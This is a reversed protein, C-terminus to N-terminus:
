ENTVLETYLGKRAMLEEHTGREVVVGKDMVLIEDCDRITSLRHAVIICTIGRNHIANVVDYETKADLASTAEDMIIITPEQALVRAIELRQRQGGSFDKGGESLKYQFGGDRQMIDNYIQADWAALTVEFDEISTDWMRINNAITDEFIVIDQDVVALSGTLLEHDINQIPQGNFLIEGNWPQYLGSILKTVTSKGCGSGGVLAVRSGPKLTLNFNQILPPALKSYGFTINRLEVQGSLKGMSDTFVTHDPHANYVPDEPYNMVDDIREMETRMEMVTQGSSILSTAPSTFSALFGQFQAIMGVTFQGRMTLWVGTLIIASNCLMSVIAPVLGLFQEMQSSRIQQSNVSAQFGAWRSFFGNEAGNAKITEIMEVGSITTSNLKGLDRMKVRSLNIRRKSIITSMFINAAISIVGLLTLLWSYRLMVVFYFIMMIINLALPAFTNVISNAVAGNSSQRMQIDGALRQSFFEAPLHLVKWLFSTNGVVSFKANIRNSYFIQIINIFVQLCSFVILSIMFPVFWEPNQRTLLRDFFVRSFVPRIVGLLTGIITCMIVFAIASGAGKLRRIAFSIVSKPKGEPIFDEGPELMICVGTFSRDFEELSIKVEGRAPDNIIAKDKRFGDLVVFHNMNWHIICPFNGHARLAEPESRFGNATFGYSRAALLVNRANSGDRSVGCDLRVKELPIWKGYYAAVMALCAAGCELAEMQMIVPVRAVGKTVPATNLKKRKM